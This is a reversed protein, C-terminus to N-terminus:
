KVRDELEKKMEEVGRLNMVEKKRVLSEYIYSICVCAYVFQIYVYRASDKTNIM